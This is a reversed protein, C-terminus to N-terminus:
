RDLNGPLLPSAVLGTGDAAPARRRSRRSWTPPRQPGRTLTIVWLQDKESWFVPDNERLWRFRDRMKQEDWDRSELYNVDVNM